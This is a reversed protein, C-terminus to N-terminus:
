FELAATMLGIETTSKASLYIVYFRQYPTWLFGHKKNRDPSPSCVGGGRWRGQTRAQEVTNKDMRIVHWPWQLM